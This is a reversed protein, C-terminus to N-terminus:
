KVFGNIQAVCILNGKDDKVTVEHVCNHRSLAIEKSEAEIYTAGFCPAIYTINATSTVTVPHLANSLVAMTFDAITFLMGGQVCDNANLHNDNIKARCVAHKDTVEIIEIGNNEVFRDRRFFKKLEDFSQQM